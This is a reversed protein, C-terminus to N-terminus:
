KKKSLKAYEEESYYKKWTYDPKGTVAPPLIRRAPLESASPRSILWTERVGRFDKPGGVKGPCLALPPPHRAGTVAQSGGALDQVGYMRHCGPPLAATREIEFGPITLLPNSASAGKIFSNYHYKPRIGRKETPTGCRLGTWTFCADRLAGSDPLTLEPESESSPRSRPPASATRGKGLDVEDKANYASLPFLGSGMLAENLVGRTHLGSAALAYDGAPL